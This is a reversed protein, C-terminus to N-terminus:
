CLGKRPEIEHTLTLILHTIAHLISLIARLFTVIGVGMQRGERPDLDELNELIWERPRGGM